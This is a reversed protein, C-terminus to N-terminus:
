YRIRGLYDVVFDVQYPQKVFKASLNEGSFLYLFSLQRLLYNVLLGHKYASYIFIGLLGKVNAVTSWLITKAQKHITTVYEVNHNKKPIM